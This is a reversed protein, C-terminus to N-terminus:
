PTHCQLVTVAALISLLVNYNIAKLGSFTCIEIAIWILGMFQNELDWIDKEVERLVFFVSNWKDGYLFLFYIVSM